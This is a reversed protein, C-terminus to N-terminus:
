RCLRHRRSPVSGAGTLRWYEAVALETLLLLTWEAGGKQLAVGGLYPSVAMAVPLPFGLRGMLVPHREAGFLALPVTGRAVSGIGNRGGYLAIALAVFPLGLTLMSALLDVHESDCSAHERESAAVAHRASTGSM